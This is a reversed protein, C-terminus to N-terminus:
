NLIDIFTNKKKLEAIRENLPHLLLCRKREPLSKTFYNRIKNEILENVWFIRFFKGQRPAFIVM